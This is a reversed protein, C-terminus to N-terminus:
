PPISGMLWDYTTTTGSNDSHFWRCAAKEFPSTSLLEGIQYKRWAVACLTDRADLPDAISLPQYNGSNPDFYSSWTNHADSIANRRMIM